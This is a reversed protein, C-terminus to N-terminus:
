APEDKNNPESIAKGGLPSVLNQLLHWTPVNLDTIIERWDMELRKDGLLEAMFAAIEGDGFPRAFPSDGKREVVIQGFVLHRNDALCELLKQFSPDPVTSGM